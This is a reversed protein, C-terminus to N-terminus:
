AEVHLIRFRLCGDFLNFGSECLFTYTSAGQAEQHPVNGCLNALPEPINQNGSTGRSHALFEEAGLILSCRSNFDHFVEFIGDLRNM